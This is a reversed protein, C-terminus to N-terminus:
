RRKNNREGSTRECTENGARASVCEGGRTTENGTRASVCEGGRTIADIGKLLVMRVNPLGTKDVTALAMANPDNPEHITADEFWREFLAFPDHSNEMDMISMDLPAPIKQSM